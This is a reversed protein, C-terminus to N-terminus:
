SPNTSDVSSTSCDASAKPNSQTVPGGAATGHYAIVAAQCANMFEDAVQDPTGGMAAYLAAVVDAETPGNYITGAAQAATLKTDWPVISGNFATRHDAAHHDEHRRNASFMAADSPKGIARFTSNGAGTCTALSPYKAGVATKLVSTTWPGAALVTEDFSGTNTPVTVVRANVGGSAASAFSLTPKVLLRRADATSWFTSGNLTPWTVGVETGNMIATALNNSEHVAGAGWTATRQIMPTSTRNAAGSTDHGVTAPGTAGSRGQRVAQKQQVVHTLEHALLRKGSSGDPDYMGNGFYIHSGHTFALASLQRSMEGAEADRHVRVRSFDYGFANEMRQCTLAPLAEGARYGSLRDTVAAASETATLPTAFEAKRFVVAQSVPPYEEEEGEVGQVAGPRTMAAKSPSQAVVAPVRETPVANEKEDECGACKRQIAAPASGIPTPEVMRMVQEAVRDAEQEYEDGPKNIALKTQVAKVAPTHIPVRSFDHGFHVIETTGSEVEETNAELFRQVAQNGITRQSHVISHANPNRGFLARDPKASIAAKTQQAAKQKQAFTRM